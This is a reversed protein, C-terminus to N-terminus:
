RSVKTHGAYPYVYLNSHFVPIKEKRECEVIDTGYKCSTRKEDYQNQKPRRWKCKEEWWGSDHSGAVQSWYLLDKICHFLKALM